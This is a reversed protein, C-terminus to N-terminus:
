FSNKYNNLLDYMRKSLLLVNIEKNIDCNNYLFELMKSLAYEDDDIKDELANNFFSNAYLNVAFIVNNRKQDAASNIDVYAKVIGKYKLKPKFEEYTVTYFDNSKYKKKNFTYNYITCQLEKINDESKYWKKSLVYTDENFLIIKKKNITTDEISYLKLNKLMKELKTKPIKKYPLAKKVKTISKKAIAINYGVDESYCNNKNIHYQERELLKNLNSVFEVIEFTFNEIGYKNFDLQLKSNCHTGTCLEDLHQRWRYTINKSSGIYIKGNVKNTIKYIGSYVISKRRSM